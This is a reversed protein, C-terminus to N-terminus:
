SAPWVFVESSLAFQVPINSVESVLGHEKIVPFPVEQEM